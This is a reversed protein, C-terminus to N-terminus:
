TLLHPSHPPSVYYHYKYSRNMPPIIIAVLRELDCGNDVCSVRMFLEPTLTVVYADRYILYHYYETLYIVFKKRKM